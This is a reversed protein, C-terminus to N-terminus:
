PPLLKGTHRAENGQFGTALLPILRKRWFILEIRAVKVGIHQMPDPRQGVADRGRRDLLADPSRPCHYGM